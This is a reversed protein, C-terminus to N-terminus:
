RVGVASCRYQEGTKLDFLPKLAPHLRPAFAFVDISMPQLAPGSLKPYRCDAGEFGAYGTCFGCDHLSFADYFGNPFAAKEIALIIKQSLHQDQSPSLIGSCESSLRERYEGVSPSHVLPFCSLGKGRDSCALRHKLLSQRDNPIDARCLPAAPAGRRESAKARHKEPYDM